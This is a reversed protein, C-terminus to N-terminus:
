IDSPDNDGKLFDPVGALGILAALEEIFVRGEKIRAELFSSLEEDSLPAMFDEM